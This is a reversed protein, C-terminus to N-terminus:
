ARAKCFRARRTPSSRSAASDARARQPDRGAGHRLRGDGARRRQLAHAGRGAASLPAGYDGIQKCMLIDMMHLQRAASGLGLELLSAALPPNKSARLMSDIAWFLNVATPRTARLLEAAAELPRGTREAIAMGYAAACGIAPAGRVVMDRIATAVEEVTRCAVWVEREPLLRQDILELVGSKQDYRLPALTQNSELDIVDIKSRETM